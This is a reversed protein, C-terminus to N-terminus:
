ESSSSSPVLDFIGMADTDSGSASAGTLSIGVPKASNVDDFVISALFKTKKIAFLQDVTRNIAALGLVVEHATEAFKVGSWKKNLLSNITADSCNFGFLQLLEKTVQPIFLNTEADGPTMKSAWPASLGHIRYREVSPTGGTYSFGSEEAVPVETPATVGSPLAFGDAFGGPVVHLENLGTFVGNANSVNAM